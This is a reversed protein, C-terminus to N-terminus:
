TSKTQWQKKTIDIEPIVLLNQVVVILEVYTSVYSM